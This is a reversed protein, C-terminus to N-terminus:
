PRLTAADAERRSQAKYQSMLFCPFGIPWLFLVFLGWGVSSSKGAAWVGTVALMLHIFYSGESHTGASEMAVMLALLGITVLIAWYWKM